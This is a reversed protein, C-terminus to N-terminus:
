ISKLATKLYNRAQERPIKLSKDVDVCLPLFPDSPLKSFERDHIDFLDLLNEIRTYMSDDTGKIARQFIIFPKQFILSFVTGHFSDTCLLDCNLILWLFETPDCMYAPSNKDTIDILPKETTCTNLFSEEEHTFAGLSYKLIYPKNIHLFKPEKAFAEWQSASLLFTPDLSVVSDTRGTLEQILKAGSPERVSLHKIGALWQAYMKKQGESINTVGFSAAYSVRKHEPAFTLFDVASGRWKPHWVQDSGTIFFDYYQQFGEPLNDESNLTFRSKQIYKDKFRRFRIYRMIQYEANKKGIIRARCLLLFRLVRTKFCHEDVRNIVNHVTEASIGMENLFMQLAYNQLRNGYNQGDTITMIAAKM